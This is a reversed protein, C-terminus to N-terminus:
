NKILNKFYEITKDLGVTLPIKPQWNLTKAKDINPRRHTPDDKPLNCYIIKSKSDIKTLVMNALEKVTFENPNGLNIPGTFSDDTNMVKIIGDILDDIYCFSRSQTGNGYITIDENKLAQRIFNSVVRGDYQNMNPGYTNFIRIVKIKTGYIRNYDFCLSEACRKGEDYCARPGIPNVNGRYSELQEICDPEGYVESTSFQMIKCHNINALELLNLIGLICTKTTEISHKGQYHVPSAPCAANYIYDLPYLNLALFKDLTLNNIDINIFKFRKNCIIKKLNNLSGTYLNDICIVENNEDELLKKCLHSGIFGAGGTVLIRNM